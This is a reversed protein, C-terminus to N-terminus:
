HHVLLQGGHYTLPVCPPIMTVVQDDFQFSINKCGSSSSAVEIFMKSSGGSIGFIGVMIRSSLSFFPKRPKITLKLEDRM